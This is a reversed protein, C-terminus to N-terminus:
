GGEVIAADWSRAVPLVYKAFTEITELLREIPPGFTIQFGSRERSSNIEVKQVAESVPQPAPMPVALPGILLTLHVGDFM